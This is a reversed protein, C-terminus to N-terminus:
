SKCLEVIYYYQGTCKVKGVIRDIKDSKSTIHKRSTIFKYPASDQDTNIWYIWSQLDNNQDSNEILSRPMQIIGAIIVSRTRAFIDNVVTEDRTCLLPASQSFLPEINRTFDKYYLYNPVDDPDVFGLFKHCNTPKDFIM